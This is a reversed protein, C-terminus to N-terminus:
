EGQQEHKKYNFLVNQIARDVSDPTYDDTFSLGYIEIGRVWSEIALDYDWLSYGPELIHSWPEPEQGYLFIQGDSQHISEAQRFFNLDEFGGPPGRPHEESEWMLRCKLNSNFESYDAWYGIAKLFHPYGGVFMAFWSPDPTPWQLNVQLKGKKADITFDEHGGSFMPVRVAFETM